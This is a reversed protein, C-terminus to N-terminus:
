IVVVARSHVFSATFPKVDADPESTLVDLHWAPPDAWVEFPEAVPSAPAAYSLSLAPDTFSDLSLVLEAVDYAEDDERDLWNLPVPVFGFRSKFAFLGPKALRGFLSPDSGLSMWRFGRARAEDAVIMYLARTLGGGRSSPVTAAFSVRVADQERRLNCICAGVLEDGDRASVLLFDDAQDLLRRRMLRAYPVGHDMTAVQAEYVRLFEDLATASLPAQASFRLRNDRAYRRGNRVNRQEKASLHAVFEEESAGVAAGWNVWTPKITFGRARLAVEDAPEWVRCRVVDAQGRLARWDCAMATELDVEVTRLGDVEAIPITTV